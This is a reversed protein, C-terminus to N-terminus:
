GHPTSEGSQEKLQAELEAVRAKLSENEALRLAAYEDDNLQREVTPVQRGQATTSEGCSLCNYKDAGTQLDRSGCHACIM